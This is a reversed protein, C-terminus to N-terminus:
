TVEVIVDELEYSDGDIMGRDTLGFHPVCPSCLFNLALLPRDKMTCLLDERLAREIEDFKAGVIEYPDESLLGAIPLEVEAVIRGETAAVYGGGLEILRNVATAMNRYDTGLVVLNHANHNVSTAIAGDKIGFGQAFGKGIRGSGKHRDIVAVPLIDADLDPVIKGNRVSLSAVICSKPSGSVLVKVKVNAAWPSTPLALDDDRIAKGVHITRQSWDPYRFTPLEVVMRGGAAVLKGHVLVKDAKLTGLDDLIVIDAIKGPTISGFDRQIRLHNATNITAMQIATVPDVGNSIALRVRQDLHGEHILQNTHVDDTCFSLMTTDIKKERLLDALRAFETEEFKYPRHTLLVHLGHRLDDLVEETDKPTHSDELGAAVLANLENARLGPSYGSVTKGAEIASAIRALQDHDKTLIFKPSIDGALCVAHPLRLMAATEKLTIESGATEAEQSLEPVRAPVRLLFNIPLAEAEELLLNIGRLGLVNGLEHPDAVVTTVGRPVIARALQSVTVSCSEPHMHPDIFGPVLYQGDADIVFTEPFSRRENDLAIAAVREGKLLVDAKHIERTHVNVLKAGRIVLDPATKDLAVDILIEKQEVIGMIDELLRDHLV